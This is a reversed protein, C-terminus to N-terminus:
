EGPGGGRSDTRVILHATSRAVVQYAPDEPPLRLVLPAPSGVEIRARAPEGLLLWPEIFAARVLYEPPVPQRFLRGLNYAFELERFLSPSHFMGNDTGLLLRIGARHMAALDPRRGFLANSRPCVAVCVREAAVREFDGPEACTLHVLLDPRPDLYDAPDERTEESAHLAFIKRRERCATAITTRVERSEELASSMGVGDALELLRRLEEPDIPRQLPRGLAFVRLPLGASARRLLEVGPIGEERFDIVGGVRERVMRQLARRMASRKVSDPTESLYRFKLGSPPRVLESLSAVPPERAFGSDGLHTHGNVPQPVVIGKLARERGRNSEPVGTGRETVRGDEIRVFGPRVGESDIIAGKVLLVRSPRSRRARDLSAAGAAASFPIQRPGRRGRMRIVGESVPVGGGSRTTLPCVFM